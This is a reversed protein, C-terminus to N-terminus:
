TTLMSLVVHVIFKVSNKTNPVYKIEIEDSLTFFNDGCSGKMRNLRQKDKLKL